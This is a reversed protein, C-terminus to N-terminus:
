FRIKAGLMARRPYTFSSPLGFATSTGLRSIVNEAPGANTLNLIDAFFDARLGHSNLDFSKQLRLDVIDLNDTRRSGDLPEMYVTPSGAFGLGSIRVQRAWPRGTQHQINTSVLIGYPAQYMFQVKAVVPRDGILRGESNVLDNPGNPFRGFSAPLETQGSSPSGTSSPLRGTSKSLVVSFTGQWRHSMRKTLVFTAGRYHTYLEPLNTMLFVSQAVPTLLKYVMVPQNSADTGKSDLYPVQAYQGTTDTWGPYDHGNKYVYNFQVGLDAVLQQEMQVIFQDTYPDKYDPDIKLNPSSSTAQFNTRNGNADIDFTYVPTVGPATATFDALLPGRYYRGYHAKVVSKAASDIQWNVGVRPSV